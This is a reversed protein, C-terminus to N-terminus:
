PLTIMPHKNSLPKNKVTHTKTNYTEHTKLFSHSIFPIFHLIKPQIHLSPPRSHSVANLLSNPYIESFENQTSHLTIHLTPITNTHSNPHFPTRIM